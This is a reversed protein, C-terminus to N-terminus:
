MRGQSMTTNQCVASIVAPSIESFESANGADVEAEAGAIGDEKQGFEEPEDLKLWQRIFREKATYSIAKAAIEIDNRPTEAGELMLRLVMKTGMDDEEEVEKSEPGNKNLQTTCVLCETVCYTSSHETGECFYRNNILETCYVESNRRLHSSEEIEERRATEKAADADSLELLCIDIFRAIDISCDSRTYDYRSTSSALKDSSGAWSTYNGNSSM